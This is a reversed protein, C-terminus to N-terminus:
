SEDGTENGLVELGMKIEVKRGMMETELIAIRKHRDIFKIMGELGLLPGELITVKEGKKIGVSEPLAGEPTLFRQLFVEEGPKLPLFLEDNQLVMNFGPIQKLETAFAEIEETQVFLYSPFLKTETTTWSGHIYKKITNKPIVCREFTAPDCKREIMLRCQEERGTTTWIVYWM